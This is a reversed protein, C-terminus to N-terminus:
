KQGQALVFLLVTVLFHLLSCNKKAFVQLHANKKTVKCDYNAIMLDNYVM